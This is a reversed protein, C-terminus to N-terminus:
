QTRTKSRDNLDSGEKKILKINGQAGRLLLFM